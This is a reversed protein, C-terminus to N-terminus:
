KLSLYFHKGNSLQINTDFVPTSERHASDLLEVLRQAPTAAALNSELCGSDDSSGVARDAFLANTDRAVESVDGRDFHTFLDACCHTDFCAFNRADRNLDIFTLGAANASREKEGPDENLDAIRVADCGSSSRGSLNDELPRRVDVKNVKEPTIPEWSRREKSDIKGATGAGM